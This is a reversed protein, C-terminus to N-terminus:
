GKYVLHGRRIGSSEAIVDANMAFHRGDAHTVACRAGPVPEEPLEALVVVFPLVDGGQVSAPLVEFEAAIHRPMMVVFVEGAVSLAWGKGKQTDKVKRCVSWKGLAINL